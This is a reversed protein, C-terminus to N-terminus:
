GKKINDLYGVTTKYGVEDQVLMFNPYKKLIKARRYQKQKNESLRELEYVIWQGVRFKCNKRLDEVRM